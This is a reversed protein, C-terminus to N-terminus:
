KRLLVGVLFLRYYNNRRANNCSAEVVGNVLACACFKAAYYIAFRSIVSNSNSNSNRPDLLRTTTFYDFTQWSRSSSSLRNPLVVALTCYEPSQPLELEKRRVCGYVSALHCSTLHIFYLDHVDYYTAMLYGTSM